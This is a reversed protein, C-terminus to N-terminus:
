PRPIAMATPSAGLNVTTAASDEARTVDSIANLTPALNFPGLILAASDSTVTGSANGVVVSYQGADGAELASLTLQASTSGSVRAGDALNVGGRRWRYTIPQQSSRAAVSFTATKGLAATTPVPQTTITPAVIVVVTAGSSTVDGHANSVRVTYTGGDAVTASTVRYTSAVAGPIDVGGRRWQYALPAAM